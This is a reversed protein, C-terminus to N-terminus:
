NEAGAGCPGVHDSSQQECSSDINEECHKKKKREMRQWWRGSTIMLVNQPVMKKTYKHINRAKNQISARVSM